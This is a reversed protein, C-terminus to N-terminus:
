GVARLVSVKGLAAADRPDVSMQAGPGGFRYVRGSAPGTVTLATRGVYVFVAHRTPTNLRPGAHLPRSRGCCM